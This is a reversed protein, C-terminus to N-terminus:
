EGVLAVHYVNDLFWLLGDRGPGTYDMIHLAERLATDGTYVDDPEEEDHSPIILEDAEDNITFEVLVKRLGM